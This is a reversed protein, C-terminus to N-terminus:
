TQKAIERALRDVENLLRRAYRPLPEDVEEFWISGDSLEADKALRWVTGHGDETAAEAHRGIEALRVLVDAATM